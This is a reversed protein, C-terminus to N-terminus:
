GGLFAKSDRRIVRVSQTIWLEPNFQGVLTDVRTYYDCDFALEHRETKESKIMDEEGFPAEVGATRTQVKLIGTCGLAGGELKMTFEPFVSDIDFGFHKGSPVSLMRTSIFADVAESVTKYQKLFTLRLGIRTFKEVGLQRVSEVIFNAYRVLEDEDQIAGAMVVHSRDLQVSMEIRNGIQFKTLNPKADKVEIDPWRAEADAWISGAADWLRYANPYRIEFASSRLSLQGVEMPTTLLRDLNKGSYQDRTEPDYGCARGRSLARNRSHAPPAISLANRM